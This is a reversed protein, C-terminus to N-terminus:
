ISFGVGSKCSNKKSSNLFKLFARAADAYGRDILLDLFLKRLYLIRVTMLTKKIFSRIYWPSLKKWPLELNNRNCLLFMERPEFEKIEGLSPNLYLLYTILCISKTPVSSKIAADLWKVQPPARLDIM